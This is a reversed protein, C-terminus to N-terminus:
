SRAVWEGLAYWYSDGLAAAVEPDTHAPNFVNHDLDARGDVADQGHGLVDLRREDDEAGVAM